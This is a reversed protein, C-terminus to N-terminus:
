GRLALMHIIIGCAWFTTVFSLCDGVTLWWPRARGAEWVLREIRRWQVHLILGLLLLYTELTLKLELWRGHLLAISLLVQATMYFILVGWGVIGLVRAELPLPPPEISADPWDFESASM